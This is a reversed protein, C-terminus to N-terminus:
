SLDLDVQQVGACAPRAQTRPQKRRKTNHGLVAREIARVDQELRRMQKRRYVTEFDRAM